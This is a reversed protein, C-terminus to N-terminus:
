RAEMGATGSLTQARPGCSDTRPSGSSQGRLFLTDGFKLATFVRESIFVRFKLVSVNLANVHAAAVRPARLDATFGGLGSLDCARARRLTLGLGSLEWQWM